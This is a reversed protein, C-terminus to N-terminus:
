ARSGVRQPLASTAALRKGFRHDAGNRGFPEQFAAAVGPVRGLDHVVFVNAAEGLFCDGTRAAVIPREVRDIELHIRGVLVPLDPHRKQYQPSRPPRRRRLFIGGHPALERAIEDIRIWSAGQIAADILALYEPLQTLWIV